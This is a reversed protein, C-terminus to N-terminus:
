LLLPFSNVQVSKEDLGLIYNDIGGEYDIGKLAATTMQFRVWDNLSESWVKKNIVNPYWKRKCRHHSFSITNGSRIDKGHYLGKWAHSSELLLSQPCPLLENRVMKLVIQDILISDM